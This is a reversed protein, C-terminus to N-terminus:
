ELMMSLSGFFAILVVLFLVEQKWRNQLLGAVERMFANPWFWWRTRAGMGEARLGALSAWVGSRFVHYNTTAFVVKAEQKQHEILEKSFTMNQFTNVSRDEKLIREPPIGRELLYREMAEAEPMVEDKGQGGSPVFCAERGTAEKQTKWFDIARDVRGKLLPTLTGDKRFYCGLIIIYDQGPDPVHKAARLGCVVSGILMCEFYVFVTAYVGQLTETVRYEWESGMFDQQYLWFGVAEGLILLFSVILGLVNQVRFREHRLLEINSVAMAVAFALVMPLSLMMFQLGATNFVRYASMMPFSLPDVLHRITVILMLIGTALSFLSFGSFYITSYAYFAPGKTIRYQYIMIASVLLFFVTVAILVTTDGTFGGTGRDYVTHFAGVRYLELGLTEGAMNEVNVSANGRREGRIPIRLANDRREPSGISVIGEEQPVIRLLAETDTQESAEGAASKQHEEELIEGPLPVIATYTHDLTLRSILCVLVLACALVAIQIVVKKM